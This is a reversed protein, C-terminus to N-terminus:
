PINKVIRPGIIQTLSLPLHKWLSILPGFKPNLPNLNPLNKQNILAYQYHLPEPEIGFHRKFDYAGTNSKSRGFDFWKLGRKCGKEILTWYMFNNPAIKNNNYEKLSGGYYPMVTDRFYFSLVAAVVKNRFWIYLIDATEQFESLFNEFLKRPFVPTGLNRVSSSYVHYFEDIHGRSFEAQLGAEKARRVLRRAERPMVKFNEEPDDFLQQRFTVYLDSSHMSRVPIGKERNRFEVYDVGFRKGLEIAEEVLAREVKANDTIAGGYVAFANSVLMKGFLHSRVFFLPLVGCIKDGQEAYFYFPTHAFTKKIVNQWGMLHCFTGRPSNYVYDDWQQHISKDNCNLQHIEFGPDTLKLHKGEAPPIELM